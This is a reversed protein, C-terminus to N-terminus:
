DGIKGWEAVKERNRLWEDRFQAILYIGVPAGNANRIHDKLFGEIHCGLELYSHLAKLNDARVTSHMKNVNEDMFGWEHVAHALRRGLGRRLYTEDGIYIGWDCIRAARDIDRLNVIGFPVADLFAIRFVVVEPKSALSDLWRRHRDPTIESQDLMGRRVRPSNRWLRVKEQLKPGVELINRYEIM